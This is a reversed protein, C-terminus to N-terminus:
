AAARVEEPGRAPTEEVREKIGMLQRRTMLFVGLGMFPLVMRQAVTPEPTWVRFREVVRTHSGDIPRLTFTWTAKFEPMGMSGM